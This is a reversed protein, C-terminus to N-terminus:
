RAWHIFQTKRPPDPRYKSMFEADASWVYETNVAYSGILGNGFDCAKSPTNELFGLTWVCHGRHWLALSCQGRPNIPRSPKKTEFAYPMEVSDCPSTPAVALGWEKRPRVALERRREAEAKIAAAVAAERKCAIDHPACPSFHTLIPWAVVVWVLFAATAIAARVAKSKGGTLVYAVLLSAFALTVLVPMWTLWNLNPKVVTTLTEWYAFVLIVVILAVAGGAVWSLVHKYSRPTQNPAPHNTPAPAPQQQAPPRGPAQNVPGLQRRGRMKIAALGGLGLAAVIVVVFFIIAVISASM